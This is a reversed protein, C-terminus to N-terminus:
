VLILVFTSLAVSTCRGHGVTIGRYPYREICGICSTFPLCDSKLLSWPLHIFTPSGTPYLRSIVILNSFSFISFRTPWPSVVPYYWAVIAADFVFYGLSIGLSLNAITSPPWITDKAGQLDNSKHTPSEQTADSVRFGCLLHMCVYVGHVKVYHHGRIIDDRLCIEQHISLLALLIALIAYCDRDIWPISMEQM